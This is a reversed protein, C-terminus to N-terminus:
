MHLALMPNHLSTFLLALCFPETSLLAHFFACQNEPDKDARDFDSYCVITIRSAGKVNAQYSNESNLGLPRKSRALYHDVPLSRAFVTVHGEKLQADKNKEWM